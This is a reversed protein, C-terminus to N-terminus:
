TTSYLLPAFSPFIARKLGAVNPPVDAAEAVAGVTIDHRVTIACLEPLNRAEIEGHEAAHGDKVQCGCILSPVGHEAAHGDEVQCGCISIQLPEDSSEGDAGVTIDHRVTITCTRSPQAAEIEGREAAHSSKVVVSASTFPSM